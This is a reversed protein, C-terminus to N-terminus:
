RRRPSATPPWGSARRASAPTATSRRPGRRARSGRGRRGPPPPRRARPGPHLRPATPTASGGSCGASRPSAAVPEHALHARAGPPGGRARRGHRPARRRGARRDRRALPGRRRPAGPRHAAARRGGGAPDGGGARGRLGRHAAPPDAVGLRPDRRRRLRHRHRGHRRRRLGRRREAAPGRAHGRPRHARRRRGRGVAALRALGFTALLILIPLPGADGDSLLVTTVVALALYAVLPVWVPLKRVVSGVSRLALVPRMRRWASGRTRGSDCAAPPSPDAAGSPVRRRSAARHGAHGEGLAGTMGAGGAADIGFEADAGAAVAPPMRATQAAAADGM